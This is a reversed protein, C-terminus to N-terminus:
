RLTLNSSEQGICNHRVPEQVGQVGNCVINGEWKGRGLCVPREIGFYVSNEGAKPITKV